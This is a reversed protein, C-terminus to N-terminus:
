SRLRCAIDRVTFCLLNFVSAGSNAKLDKQPNLWTKEVTAQNYDHEIHQKKFAVALCPMRTCASSYVAFYM